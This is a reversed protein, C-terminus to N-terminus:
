GRPARLRLSVDGSYIREYTGDNDLILSGDAVVGRAVGHRRGGPEFLTVAQGYLADFGAWRSQFVVFGNLAFTDIARLVADICRGAIVSRAPLDPVHDALRTWAQDIPAAAARPMALNLGLGAVLRTRTTAEARAEILIGGIKARGIWLDNPWKLGVDAAGLDRLVEAVAVGIALSLAGLAGARPALDRGVSLYLNAAMPSVWARGDRGRGATQQEALCARTLGDECAGVYSNTSDISQLVVLQDLMRGAAVGLAARVAPGNLLDLPGALRYGRGTVSHIALGRQRLRAIRASIAARTVGLAEALVPGRHWAGDALAALVPDPAEIHDSVGVPQSM